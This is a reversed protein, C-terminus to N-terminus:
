RHEQEARAVLRACADHLVPDEALVNSEASLIARLATAETLTQCSAAGVLIGRAVRERERIRGRAAAARVADYVERLRLPKLVIDEAGAQLTGIANPVSLSSALALLGCGFERFQAFVQSAQGDPLATECVVVDYRETTWAVRAAAITGVATVAMGRGRLYEQLLERVTLTPDVLL